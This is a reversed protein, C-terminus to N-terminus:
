LVDMLSFKTSNIAFMLSKRPIFLCISVYIARKLSLWIVYVVFMLSRRTITSKQTFAKNCIECVHSKEKTHIRLHDRLSCINSFALSCIECVYPKENTHIRLHTRLSCSESFAKYCIHCVHPKEKTHVLLSTKKFGWKSLISQSM